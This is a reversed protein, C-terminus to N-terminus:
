KKRKTTEEELEEVEEHKRKREKEEEERREIEEDELRKKEKLEDLRHQVCMIRLDLDSIYEHELQVKQSTLRSLASSSRYAACGSICISVGHVLKSIWGDGMEDHVEKLLPWQDM